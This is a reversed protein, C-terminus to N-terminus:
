GVDIVHRAAQLSRDVVLAFRDRSSRAVGEVSAINVISGGNTSKMIKSARQIMFLPGKLNVEFTKDWAAEEADILPGFYPNTAANNVLIDCKKFKKEIFIFLKEIDEKKGVHAAYPTALGGKEKINNAVKELDEIKRSVLIVHADYEALANAIAEGIGRSAGTVVAIKDKLNFDVLKM